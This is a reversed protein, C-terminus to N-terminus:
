NKMNAPQEKNGITQDDDDDDTPIDTFGFHKWFKNVAGALDWNDTM